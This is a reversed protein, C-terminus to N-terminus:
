VKKNYLMNYEDEPLVSPTGIQEATALVRAIAEAAELKSFAKDLNEEVAIVGHSALLVVDHTKLLPLAGEV